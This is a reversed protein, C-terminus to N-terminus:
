EDGNRQKDPSPQVARSTSAGIRALGILRTFDVSTKIDGFDEPSFTAKGANEWYSILEEDTM